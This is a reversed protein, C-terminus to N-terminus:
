LTTGQSDSGTWGIGKFIEGVSDMRQLMSPPSQQRQAELGLVGDDYSHAAASELTKTKMEDDSGDSNQAGDDAAGENKSLRHVILDDRPSRRRLAIKERVSLPRGEEEIRQVDKDEDTDQGPRQRRWIIIRTGLYPHVYVHSFFKGTGPTWGENITSPM